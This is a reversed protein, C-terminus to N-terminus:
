TNGMAILQWCTCGLFHTSIIKQLLKLTPIFFCEVSSFTQSKCSKWSKWIRLLWYVREDEFIGGKVPIKKWSLSLYKKAMASNSSGDWSFHNVLSIFMRIRMLFYNWSTTGWKAITVRDRLKASIGLFHLRSFVTLIHIFWRNIYM